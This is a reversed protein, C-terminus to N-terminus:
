IGRRRDGQRQVGDCELLGLVDEASSLKKSVENSTFDDPHLVKRTLFTIIASM